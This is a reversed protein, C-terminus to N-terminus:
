IDFSKGARWKIVDGTTGGASGLAIGATASTGLKFGIYGTNETASADKQKNERDVPDEGVPIVMAPSFPAVASLPWDFYSFTATKIDTTIYNFTTNAPDSVYTVTGELGDLESMGYAQPVIFRVREGIKFNHKVTFTIPADNMGGDVHAIYRHRPYFLPDYDIKRFSGTTGAVIGGMYDLSFHTANFTENGITFDMGGLQQAGTINIMRVIDGANLGATSTCTVVPPADNSVATVTTDLAGVSQESSDLPYIGRYAVGNFGIVCTSTSVLSSGTAHYNVVADGAGMGRQWYWETGAWQTTAVTNTLNVVEVWDVGAMVPIIKDLGDSTFEGQYICTKYAM